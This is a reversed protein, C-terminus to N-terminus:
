AWFASILTSISTCLYLGQAEESYTYLLPWVYMLYIMELRQVMMLLASALISLLTISDRPDPTNLVKHEVEMSIVPDASLQREM